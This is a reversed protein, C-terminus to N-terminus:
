ENFVGLRYAYSSNWYKTFEKRPIELIIYERGKIGVYTENQGSIAIWTQDCTLSKMLYCKGYQLSHQTNGDSIFRKESIVNMGQKTKKFFDKRVQLSFNDYNIHTVPLASPFKIFENEAVTYTIHSYKKGRLKAM